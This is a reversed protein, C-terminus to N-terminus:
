RSGTQALHRNVTEMNSLLQRNTPFELLGENLINMAEDFNRRNWAAAFRNHFDAARNGKFTQLAGEWENNSGFSAIANQLYDIAALWDRRPAASLVSATRMVAFTLLEAARDEDIRGNAAAQVIATAVDDGDSASRIRNAGALLETDLLVNDLRAFNDTTLAAEHTQLFTRAATLQNARVFRQLRNNVAANTFEQWRDEHPFVASAFQAWRLTEEERGSNLLFAGYNFLRNMLDNHPDEFFASSSGPRPENANGTLLVARDIAIPIAEQFRRRTELDSIRNTMILSVLEIPTITQRDHYNQAPVYVFGTVRGCEDHFERRNGPDFGHRSTTEVDIDEGGIHVMAFAHDVTKVGSVRIGVSKALVMYLVSSSVCNFRGNAFVTDVRTQMLSYARFVNRHLYTLIFEARERETSPFDPSAPISVALDHIRQLASGNGGSAWISIEALDQWSFGNSQVGRQFYEFAIPDPELRPFVQARQAFVAAPLCFFILLSLVLRVSKRM